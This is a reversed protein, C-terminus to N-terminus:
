KSRFTKSLILDLFLDQFGQKNNRNAKVIGEIEKVEIYSPERGTAYIMLKVALCKSFIDINTLMWRKLGIVDEIKTGDPLTVSSDIIAKSDPWKERWRGVPDFNELVFGLPDIKKHCTMCSSKKTHAALIDRPTKAGRTDPTLAPVDNPPEPVPMGLINELIWVGRLVPQTDVGNATTTMVASMSLLGGYRGDRELTIKQFKNARNKKSVNKIQYIKEAFVPTSFTFNPDIFDTMPRNAKLIETFFYELERKAVDLDDATFRVGEKALQDIHPTPIDECDYCGIDGYGLDDIYILVVNPKEASVLKQENTFFLLTALLLGLSHIPIRM